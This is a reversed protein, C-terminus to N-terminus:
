CAVPAKSQSRRRRAFSVSVFFMTAVNSGGVQLKPLTLLEHNECSIKLTILCSKAM